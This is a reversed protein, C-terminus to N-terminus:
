YVDNVLGHSEVVTIEASDSTVLPELDGGEDDTSEWSVQWILDVELDFQPSSPRTYTHGCEPSSDAPDHVEPDYAVGPGQCTTGAGDGLSWEARDPDATVSVSGGPVEAEATVPEWLDEDMWLWVPVQVLVPQDLGPSTELRPSPLVMSDRAQSAVEVPDVDEADEILEPGAFDCDPAELCAATEPDVEGDSGPEEPTDSDGDPISTEGPDERGSEADVDCGPGGSEGCETGGFFYDEDAWSVSAAGVLAVTLLIVIGYRRARLM